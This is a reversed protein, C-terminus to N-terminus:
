GYLIEKLKEVQNSTLEGPDKNDKLTHVKADIGINEAIEKVKRAGEQGAKDSDYLIDIGEVGQIKLLDFTTEKVTTV